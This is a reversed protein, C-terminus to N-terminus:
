NVHDVKSVITSHIAAIEKELQEESSEPLEPMSISGTGVRSSPDEPLPSTQAFFRQCARWQVAKTEKKAEITLLSDEITTELKQQEKNEQAIIALVPKFILYRLLLYACFFNVAQVLLTCNIEM